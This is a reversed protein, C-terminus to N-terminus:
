RSPPPFNTTAQSTTQLPRNQDVIPLPNDAPMENHYLAFQWNRDSALLIDPKGDLDFDAVVLGAVRPVDGGIVAAEAISITGPISNNQFITAGNKDAYHNAVLDPKGDGNLDAVVVRSIFASKSIVLPPAFSIQRPTSTNRFASLSYAAGSSHAVIVDSKGDGDLDALTLGHPVGGDPPVPFQGGLRFSVTELRGPASENLIVYLDGDFGAIAIDSGGFGDLDGVALFLTRAAPIVLPAAFSNTVLPAGYGLNQLLYIFKNSHDPVVLDPQGDLDLDAAVVHHPWTKPPLFISGVNLLNSVGGHEGSNRFLVLHPSVPQYFGDGPLAVDLKGDGDLDCVALGYTGGSGVLGVGLAFSNSVFLGPTTTNLFVSLLPEGGIAATLVDPKGDEDLDGAAAALTRTLTPFNVAPSFSSAGINGSGGFSPLFPRSSYATLKNPTTVSVPSFGAGFPVQVTLTDATETIVSAHVPGFYVINEAPQPAFNAGSITVTAGPAAVLPSVASIRPLDASVPKFREPPTSQQGAYIPSSVPEGRQKQHSNIQGLWIPGAVALPLALALAAKTPHRRAWKFLRPLPGAHRVSVPEGRGLHELDEALAAASPYRQEPKKKLCKLCIAELDRDLRPMLQRPPKIPTTPFTQVAETLNSAQYPTRGTIIEYLICGLAHIDVATTLDTSKGSLQEPAMYGLTGLLGEPRHPNVSQDILRALGFDAILPESGSLLINAPKLDRHMVGRQHAHHLARAVRALVPVADRLDFSSLGGSIFSALTGGEVFKMTFYHQNEVCGVEYVHVINPHDLIAAAEAERRFRAVEEPGAFRGAHIMKLAVIRNLSIHRARYVKGMGGHGIVEILEYDGFRFNNTPFSAPDSQVPREAELEIALDLLCRPCLGGPIGALLLADCTPCRAKNDSSQVPDSM